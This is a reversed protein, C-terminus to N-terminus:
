FLVLFLCVEVGSHGSYDRVLPKNAGKYVPIDTRGGMTLIACANKALMDVNHHNGFVITLVDIQLEPSALALFLAWTDDSFM